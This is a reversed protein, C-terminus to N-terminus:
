FRRGPAGPKAVAFSGDKKSLNPNFFPDHDFPGPWRRRIYAREQATPEELCNLRADGLHLLEVFPDFVSRLGRERLRLCFDVDFFRNPLNASDFGGVSEFVSRRVFMCDVAVASYNGILVNRGMNGSWDRPFGRCVNSVTEDTGLVFGGHATWLRKDLIKAGVVGIEARCALGAMERLWDNSLPNLAANIFCLIDATSHHALGNLQEALSGPEDATAAYTMDVDIGGTLYERRSRRSGLGFVVMSVKPPPEPLAYNVRHLNYPGAFVEAKIGTREFHSRIAARAREHAYPKEESSFAVSGPVARWHYLIRPIHHIREEPILEIVRLALDYDQSGEFGLRFGGISKLLETRYASLHTVLNLSYILDRSWDPKFKPQYRRGRNDILDEDSYIMDTEPFSVIENAVYFLADESLEDDHDLLVTFEGEALDLASNSAASIHGNEEREVIKIRGDKVAYERLTRRVHPLTSCDDAICLEWNEYIQGHVSDICRRLWREDTNYVPLVISILPRRSLRGIEAQMRIRAVEDLRGFKAVWRRYNKAERALWSRIRLRAAVGTLGDSRWVAIAKALKNNTASM